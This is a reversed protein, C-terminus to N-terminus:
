RLNASFRGLTQGPDPGTLVSPQPGYILRGELTGHCGPAASINLSVHIIQGRVANQEINQGASGHAPCAPGHPMRYQIGYGTGADYVAVPAAFSLTVRYGAATRRVHLHIRASSIHLRSVQSKIVQPGVPLITSCAPPGTPLHLTGTQCLHGSFSYVISTPLPDAEPISPRDFPTESSGLNGNGTAERPPQRVVILYAGYTGTVPVTHLIGHASYVVTRAHPGLLSFVALREDDAPCVPMSALAGRRSTGPSLCSPHPGPMAGSAPLGKATYLVYHGPQACTDADLVGPPLEHFLGDDGSEGDQGLVGLRGDLLRGIQVCLLGRTTHVIRMGWPPGGAPDPISLPLIQAAGHPAHTGAPIPAGVGTSFAAKQDTRAGPVPSGIGIIGTAFAAAAALLVGVVVAAFVSAHRVRKRGTKAQSSGFLVSAGASLQEKYDDLFDSVGRGGARKAVDIDRPEGAQACGGALM